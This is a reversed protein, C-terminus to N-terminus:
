EKAEGDVAEIAAPQENIRRIADIDVKARREYSYLGNREQEVDYLQTYCFGFMKPNGMLAETLIRYREMFEAESTAADGYGWSDNQDRMWEPIWKIGGYESVFFPTGDEYQLTNEERHKDQYTGTGAGFAAYHEIFKDTDQEYDHVDYIDSVVHFFGSTDICPRTPDLAKATEYAMRLLDDNQRRGKYPWTENFPCWGVISPHNRDRQVAEAWEPIFAAYTAPDSVDLGWNPMEGWALYGHKDCYYLFLPEFVKEHLRAGNFGAAMSLEIDRELDAATPATYIGTPYFGQDLVLRQFVSQGNILVRRGDVRVERLGFYSHVEDDGYTLTVDYLNGEGPGWLHRESLPVELTAVGGNCRVSAEGCARGEFSVSAAFEGAGILKAEIAVSGEAVNPLYRVSDIRTKPAFELWVTQWIGTTRTYFCEYPYYRDSQKGSPQLGSRVDDIACVVVTNEGAHLLKSIEFEFSTYGGRHAGAEEGNIWVHAEYDVAGFHLIVDGELEERSVSFTRRYWCAPIFDLNGIGSEASEPCFPVLIRRTFDGNEFMRRPIGSVSHDYEFEWEGNLNRWRDRRFQPNPHEPRPIVTRNDTM